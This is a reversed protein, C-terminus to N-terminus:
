GVGVMVVMWFPSYVQSFSLVLMAAINNEDFVSGDCMASRLAQFTANTHSLGTNALAWAEDPQYRKMHFSTMAFLAHKLPASHGARQILDDRWPNEGAANTCSLIKCTVKDYFDWMRLEERPLQLDYVDSSFSNLRRRKPSRVLDYNETYNRTIEEIQSDEQDDEENNSEDSEHFEYNWLSPIGPLPPPTRSVPPISKLIPTAPDAKIDYQPPTYVDPAPNCLLAQITMPSSESSRPSAFNNYPSTNSIGNVGNSSGFNPIDWQPPTGLISPSPHQPPGRPPPMLEAPSRAYEPRFEHDMFESMDDDESRKTALNDSLREELVYL